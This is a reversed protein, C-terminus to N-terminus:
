MARRHQAQRACMSSLATDNNFIMKVISKDVIVHATWAAGAGNAAAPIPGARVDENALHHREGCDIGPRDLTVTLAEDDDALMDFGCASAQMASEGCSAPFKVLLETPVLGMSLDPSSPTLTSKGSKKRADAAGARFAACSPIDTSRDVLGAPPVTCQWPQRRPVGCHTGARDM